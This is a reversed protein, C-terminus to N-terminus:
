HEFCAAQVCLMPFVMFELVQMHPWRVHVFLPVPNYQKAFSSLQKPGGHISVLPALAFESGHMHPDDAHEESEPKYQRASLLLQPEVLIQKGFPSKLASSHM